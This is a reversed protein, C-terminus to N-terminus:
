RAGTTQTLKSISRLLTWPTVLSIKSGSSIDIYIEINSGKMYHSTENENYQNNLKGKHVIILDGFKISLNEIDIPIGAKGIAM